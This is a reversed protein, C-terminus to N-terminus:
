ACLQCIHSGTAVKLTVPEAMALDERPGRSEAFCRRLANEMGDPKMWSGTLSEIQVCQLEGGLDSEVMLVAWELAGDESFADNALILRGHGPWRIDFATCLTWTYQTLKETLDDIANLDEAMDLTVVVPNYTRNDHMM